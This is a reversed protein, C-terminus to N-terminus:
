RDYRIAGDTGLLGNGRVFHNAIAGSPTIQRLDGLDEPEDSSLAYRVDQVLIVTMFAAVVATVGMLVLSWTRAQRPPRPLSALDPDLIGDDPQLSLEPSPDVMTM